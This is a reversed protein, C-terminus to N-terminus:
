RAASTIPALFFCDVDDPSQQTTGSGGQGHLTISPSYTRPDQWKHIIVHGDVFAIPTAGNHNGGPYDILYTAGPAASASIDLTGDNISIPSEDM